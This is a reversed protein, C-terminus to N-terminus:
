LLKEVLRFLTRELLKLSADMRCRVVKLINEENAWGREVVFNLLRDSKLTLDGMRRLRLSNQLPVGLEGKWAEEYKSLPDRASLHNFVAKGAIRGCIMAPPVGGGVTPITQGAADGVVLLNEAYTRNIPGGVPVLGSRIATPVARQLEKSAIPHKKVFHEQYDRISLGKKMYPVRVGTGVNAVDGGKPIIWAYSGPAYDQGFYMEVVEPDHEVRVMEYQHGIGYDMPDRSVPLGAERAILSFPGDAGVVVRSPIELISGGKKARIGRGGPLLGLAKTSVMLEAGARVAENVLHKDFLKRELVLGDLELEVAKSNPFIFRVYRTRNRITREPPNFLYELDRARPAIIRMEKLSPLFEGCQVPVGVDLKREVLLVRLGGEAATKATLSGAPGAGVIIVNYM